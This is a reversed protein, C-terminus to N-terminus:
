GSDKADAESDIVYTLVLVVVLASVVISLAVFFGGM